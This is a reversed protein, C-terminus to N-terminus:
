PGGRSEVHLVLGNRGSVVVRSGTPLARDAVAQWREGSLRVWGRHPPRVAFDEEVVASRGAMDNALAVRGRALDREHLWAYALDGAVNVAAILVLLGPWEVALFGAAYIGILVVSVAIPGLILIRARRSWDAFPWAGAHSRTV